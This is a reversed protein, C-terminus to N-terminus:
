LNTNLTIKVNQGKEIETGPAIDQSVVTGVGTLKVKLGRRQLAYVADRAGMGKVDPMLSTSYKDDSLSKKEVYGITDVIHEMVNREQREGQGMIYKSIEAFVPGCQGGGSAPLGRKVICVICSYRPADSPFYGCFSVMYKRAAYNGKVAFQATGTKGSVQFLKGGNGAKKGLGRSVVHELCNQIQRLTSPSCIQQKIVGVPYKKVVRGGCMEAKIFRPRVMTGGNAIANYFTLTSIPPLMTVYGISMWPLDTASWYRVKSLPDPIRPEGKGVFPLDLPIGMGERYLGQVFKEPNSHYYRDIIRSVGINSSQELIQSVTLDRHGGRNYDHDKMNRGYMNYIGGMCDITYDETIHGDEMAVMMSATKFTSGPEMLDSIAHNKMEYYEGDEGRMLNAIAKVDGTSVEMVVAVGIDGNVTEEKLKSRLAKDVFDQLNIDITSMLDHGDVAEQDIFNVHRNRIKVTHSRGPTGRLISDYSLEVGCKASDTEPYMSGITRAALGGYPRLRKTLKECHFGSIGAKERFLPLKLCEKYQIHNALKDYIMWTCSGPEEKTQLRTLYRARGKELRNRFWYADHDPFISDLGIAISDLYQEYLSDRQTQLSDMLRPSAGVVRYDLYLRYEPVSAALISGNCDLISGRVAPIEIHRKTFPRAVVEWYKAQKTIHLVETRIICAGWIAVFVMYVIFCKLHLPLNWYRDWWKKIGSKQKQHQDQEM